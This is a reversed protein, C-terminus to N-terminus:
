RKTILCKKYTLPIRYVSKNIHCIHIVRVKRSEEQLLDLEYVNPKAVSYGYTFKGNADKKGDYYTRNSYLMESDYLQQIEKRLNTTWQENFINDIM